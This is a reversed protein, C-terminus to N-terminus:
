EERWCNELGEGSLSPDFQQTVWEKCVVNESEM